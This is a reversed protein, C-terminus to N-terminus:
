VYTIKEDDVDVDKGFQQLKWWLFKQYIRKEVFFRRLDSKAQTKINYNLSYFKRM